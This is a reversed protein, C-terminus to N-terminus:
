TTKSSLSLAIVGITILAISSSKVFSIPENFYVVGIICILATGMGSWISYAISIDIKKLALTLFLLSIAFFVYALISPRLHIFGESAKSSATGVVEFIIALFLFLWWQV